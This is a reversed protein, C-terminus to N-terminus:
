MLEILRKSAGMVNTPRVAKDTSVLVFREVRYFISTEMLCQAAIINNDIAKWPNNELLPVHKYAAAHFVVSPRYQQFVRELLNREQLNGLIPKINDFKYEHIFEMQISYLNEEASDFLILLKPSFAIIQRCLESGITGGAGSIFVVKDKVYNGIKHQELRVEKRGLLDLYSIDRIAKVAVSGDILEGIGPLVKFPITTERCLTVLRQMESGTLYSISILIEQADLCFIHEKIDAVLGVVPVGHIKMGVTRPNDDVIGVPLYPLERLDNLERLVNETSDGAGILLLRKKSRSQHKTHTNKQLKDYLYRIALRETSILFFTLFADIIFFFRSYGEFVGGYFLCTVIFLEAICTGKLINLLGIYGIYRWLGRYLEFVHFIFIKICITLLLLALSVRCPAAIIEDPFRVLSATYFSLIILFIDSSLVLWFNPNAVLNEFLYGQRKIKRVLILRSDIFVTHLKEFFSM